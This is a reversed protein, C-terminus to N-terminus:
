IKTPIPPLHLYVYWVNLTQPHSPNKTTKHPLRIYIYVVTPHKRLPRPTVDGITKWHVPQTSKHIDIIDHNYSTQIYIYIKKIYM